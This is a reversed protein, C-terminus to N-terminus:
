KVSLLYAIVDALAQQDLQKELGEPMISLGTSRMDEIDVRLITDTANEQRKLTVSTATEADILGSISKGSKTLVLYNVYQPNVERNPDLVNLLITEAGRNQITTLNPGIETGVNELRHCVSCVKQFHMKGKAADGNLTLASKYADLVDQRRGLQLKSIVQKAAARVQENGHSELLKLRGPEVDSIAIEEKGVAALFNLLWEPRSFVAETAVARLKPSFRSWAEVLINGIEADPFRSLTSLAALQVDQPQRTDLLGPLIDRCDAFSSLGLTRVAAARAAPSKKEDLSTRRADDLLEKLLERTKGSGAAIQSRLPSNSKALGEMLAGTIAAALKSESAPLMDLRQIVTGVNDQRARVGIQSALQVLCDRGAASNRYQPDDWLASFVDGAGEALSSFVALRMWKDSGDSKLLAALATSKQNGPINGLTFSLQYRVRMDPDNVLSLLKERVQPSDQAVTDALRVAHERVRPNDDALRALISQATLAHLGSLAYLAHMRGEPLSSAGALTRLPEVAARDQREWLLRAATDRYWGNRHELTSVLQATTASGLKPLPPQKFGEQVVRYIRGRDRGSTLDLHKKIAPPLSAPHEIVERYVDIIYLNGDPANAFQAPRFWIDTSAVFEKKDDVRKAVLGVGNTELVKRHVINSGVDGIFAQGRYEAPWADGRYITVGTAGTFYGAARGGGEVPGPVKGSVRLRTRVIRWPEVPSIRYVEAQPGDAAISVRPGPAALYANRAIYRDEYMALQIHDSNSSLFKRGWDDFSMGHQAGGSTPTFDLTKPDFSFDRGSVNVAASNPDDARRIQGGTSSTAGHIRNDLGWHFSNFLGQVNHRNFGTFVKKRIDALGDGDTDKLYWIDPAAGVFVGGDYCTIATPWSFKDAFVTSKDFRGDADTDELLRVAGLFENDQESYDIMEVVYMRGNEDFSLAVPSHVLPEAAVQEMKFGPLTQFTKLADAPEHPPIRPLESGFDDTPEVTEKNQAADPKQQQAVSPAGPLLCVIASIAFGCVISSSFRNFKLM